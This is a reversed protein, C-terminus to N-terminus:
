PCVDWLGHVGNWNAREVRAPVSAAAEWGDRIADSQAGYNESAEIAPGHSLSRFRAPTCAGSAFPIAGSCIAFGFQKREISGKRPM